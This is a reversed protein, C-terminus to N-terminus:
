TSYRANHDPHDRFRNLRDETVYQQNSVRKIEPTIVEDEVAIQRVHLKAKIGDKCSAHKSLLSVTEPRLTQPQKTMVDYAM